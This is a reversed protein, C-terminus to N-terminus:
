RGGPSVGARAEREAVSREREALDAARNQIARDVADLRSWEAEIARHHVSLRALMNSEVFRSIGFDEPREMLWRNIADGIVSVIKDARTMENGEDDTFLDPHRAVRSSIIAATEPDLSFQDALIYGNMLAVNRPPRGGRRPSTVRVGAGGDDEEDDDDPYDGEDDDDDPEAEDDGEDDPDSTQAAPSGIIGKKKAWAMWTRDLKHAVQGDIMFVMEHGTSAKHMRAAEYGTGDGSEPFGTAARECDPDTCRFDMM